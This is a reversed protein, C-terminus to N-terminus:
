CGLLLVGEVGSAVVLVVVVEEVVEESVLDNFFVCRRGLEGTKSGLPGVVVNGVRRGLLLDVLQEIRM